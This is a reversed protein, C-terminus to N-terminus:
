WVRGREDLDMDGPNVVDPECAFLSVELGAAPTMKSVEALAADRGFSHQPPRKEQHADNSSPRDAALGAALALDLIAVALLTKGKM